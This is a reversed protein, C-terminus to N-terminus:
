APDVDVTLRLRKWRADATFEDLSRLERLVDGASNYADGFQDNGVNLVFNTGIEPISSEEWNFNSTPAPAAGAFATSQLILFTLFIWLIRLM